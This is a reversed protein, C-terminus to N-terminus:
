FHNSKRPMHGEGKIKM